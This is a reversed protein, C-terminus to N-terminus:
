RQLRNLIPPVIWSWACLAVWVMLVIGAATSAGAADLTLGLGIAAVWSGAPGLPVLLLTPWWLPNRAMARVSRAQRAMGDDEPNARVAEGYHRAASRVNGRNFAFVGLMQRGRVSEPEIALLQESLEKAERDRGYLYALTIRKELVRLSDPDAEAAADLVREAKDLVNGRMLLEGYHALLEPDEPTVALAALVAAEADGLRDRAAEAHSLLYLLEPSGPEVELGDRAADAADDYREMALLAYGRLLLAEGGITEDLDLRSLSELAREPRGIQIYRRAAEIAIAKV